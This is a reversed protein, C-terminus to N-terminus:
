LRTKCMLISFSRILVIENGVTCPQLALILAIIIQMGQMPPLDDETTLHKVELFPM